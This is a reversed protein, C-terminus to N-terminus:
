NRRFAIRSNGREGASTIVLDILVANKDISYVWYERAGRLAPPSRNPDPRQSTRWVGNSETTESIVGIREGKDNVVLHRCTGLVAFCDNPIYRVNDGLLSSATSRFRNDTRLFVPVFIQNGRVRPGQAEFAQSVIRVVEALNETKPLTLILAGRYDMTKSNRRKSTLRLSAPIPLDSNELRYTYTRGSPPRIANLDVDSGIGGRIEIPPRPAECAVLGLLVVLMLVFKLVRM